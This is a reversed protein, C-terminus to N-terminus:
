DEKGNSEGIQDSLSDWFADDADTNKAARIAKCISPHEFFYHEIDSPVTKRASSALFRLLNEEDKTLQLSGIIRELLSGQPPANKGMEFQSVTMKSRGIAAALQEQTMPPKQQKRLDRLYEGFTSAAM